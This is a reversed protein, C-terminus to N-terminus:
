KKSHLAAIQAEAHAWDASHNGPAFGRKEAIYYAAEAVMRYHAEADVVGAKTKAPAKKATAAAPKAVPKPAPKAAAKAKPKVVTEVVAPKAAKPKVVKPKASAAAVAKSAAKPKVKTEAVINRWDTTCEIYRKFKVSAHIKRLWCCNVYGSSARFICPRCSAFLM